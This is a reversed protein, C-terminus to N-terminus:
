WSLSRIPQKRTCFCHIGMYREYWIFKLSRSRDFIPIMKSCVHILWDLSKHTKRIAKEVNLDPHGPCTICNWIESWPSWRFSDLNSRYILQFHMSYPRRGPYTNLLPVTLYPKHTLTAISEWTPSQGGSRYSKSYCLLSVFLRLGLDCHYKTIMLLSM